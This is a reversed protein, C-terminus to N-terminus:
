GRVKGSWDLVGTDFATPRRWYTQPPPPPLAEIAGYTQYSLYGGHDIRRERQFEAVAQATAADYRGGIRGRYLGQGYLRRQIVGVREPTMEDACLVRIWGLREPSILVPQQPLPQVTLCWVPGPAGPPAPAQRWVYEPGTPPPGYTAAVHVKAYCEQARAAAPAERWARRWGHRRHPIRGADGDEAAPADGAQGYGSDAYGPPTDYGRPAGALDQASAALPVPLILAAIAGVISLSSPM